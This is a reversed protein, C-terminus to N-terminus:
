AAQKLDVSNFKAEVLWGLAMEKSAGFAKAVAFIIDIAEPKLGNFHQVTAIPAPKAIVVPATIEETHEAQAENIVATIRDTEVKAIVAAEADAKIKAERETISKNHTEIRSTVLLQFDDKPKYIAKGIDPFLMLYGEAVSRYWASKERLDQAITNANIKGNALMVSVAEMMGDLTKKGKIADEFSVNVTLDSSDFPALELENDLRIIHANLEKRAALLINLKCNDKEVKVAKEQLLGLADFKDAYTELFRVVDSITSIQDVTQKAIIRCTKATARSFKASAESDAFEQDNVPKTNAEALFKDFRPKIVDINSAIVEGKVQVSVLPFSEVEAAVLKIEAIVPVFAELDIEFQAWGDIIRQRRELNPYYWFNVQDILQDSNDWKSAMFLCREANSVMLQHEMQLLYMEDLDTAVLCERIPDNLTKHELAVTEDLTLGDFSASFKGLSGTVPYLDDGILKEAYPRALAEFRHGDAFLRHTLSSVDETLGTKRESLLQTRTKYKSLGMMAPTDSANFHKARYDHWAPSGQLLEHVLM